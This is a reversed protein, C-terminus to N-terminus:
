PSNSPVENDHRKKMHRTLDSRQFYRSSCLTCAFNRERLHVSRRHRDLKHKNFFKEDCMDCSLRKTKEHREQMHVKLHARQFFAADCLQCKNDKEGLHVSRNHRDRDYKRRFTANCVECVTSSPPAIRNMAIDGGTDSVEGPQGSLTNLFLLGSAGPEGDSTPENIVDGFQDGAVSASTVMSSIPEKSAELVGIQGQERYMDAKLYDELKMEEAPRAFGMSQWTLPTLTISFYKQVYQVKMSSLMDNKTESRVEKTVTMQMLRKLRGEDLKLVTFKKVVHGAPSRELFGRFMTWPSILTNLEKVKDLYEFADNTTSKRDFAYTCTCPSRDEACKPCFVRTMVTSVSQVSKLDSRRVCVANMDTNWNDDVTGFHMLLFILYDCDYLSSLLVIPYSESVSSWFRQEMPKDLGIVSGFPIHMLARGLSYQMTEREMVLLTTSSVDESLDRMPGNFVQPQHHTVALSFKDLSPPHCGEDAFTLWEQSFKDLKSVLDLAM